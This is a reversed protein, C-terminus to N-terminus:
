LCDEKCDEHIFLYAKWFSMVGSFVLGLPLNTESCVLDVTSQEPFMTIELMDLKV